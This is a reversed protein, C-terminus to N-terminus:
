HRLQCDLLRGVPGTQFDSNRRIHRSLLGVIQKCNASFSAVVDILLYSYIQSLHTKSADVSANTAKLSDINIISLLHDNM